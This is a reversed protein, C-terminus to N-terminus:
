LRLFGDRFFVCAGWRESIVTALVCFWLIEVSLEFSLCTTIGISWPSDNLWLFYHWQFQAVIGSSSM